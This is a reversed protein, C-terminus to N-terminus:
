ISLNVMTLLPVPVKRRKYVTSNLIDGHSINPISISVGVTVNEDGPEPVVAVPKAINSPPDTSATLIVLGPEPYVNEGAILNEAILSIPTPAAAVTPIAVVPVTPTTM